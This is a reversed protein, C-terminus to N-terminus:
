ADETLLAALEDVDTHLQELEAETATRGKKVVDVVRKMLRVDRAQARDLLRTAKEAAARAAAADTAIQDLQEAYQAMDDERLHDAVQHLTAPDTDIEFHMADPTGTYDGGWRVAGDVETLIRHVEAVQAPTFTRATPVGNPHAPANADVAIGGSHRSLHTPDNRNPRYAFGWCGPNRLPEVREHFQTLVYGLVTAVDDNDVIGPVFAIGDVVLPRLALDPAAPWGNDTTAM